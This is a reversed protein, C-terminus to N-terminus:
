LSYDILIKGERALEMLRIKDAELQDIRLKEQRSTYSPANAHQLKKATDGEKKELENLAAAAPPHLLSHYLEKVQCM